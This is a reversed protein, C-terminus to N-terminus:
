QELNVRNVPLALSAVSARCVRCVVRDKHDPRAQCDALDAEYRAMNVGKTDVIPEPHSACGALVVVVAAVFAIGDAMM